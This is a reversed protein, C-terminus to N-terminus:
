RAVVEPKDSLANVDIPSPPPPPTKLVFRPWCTNKSGKKAQAQHLPRQAEEPDLDKKDYPKFLVGNDVCWKKSSALDHLTKGSKSEIITIKCCKSINGLTLLEKDGTYTDRVSGKLSYM